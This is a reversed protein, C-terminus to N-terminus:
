KARMIQCPAHPVCSTARHQGSLGRFSLVSLRLLQTRQTGLAHLNQMQAAATSSSVRNPLGQEKPRALM